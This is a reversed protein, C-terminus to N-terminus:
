LVATVEPNVWFLDGEQSVQMTTPLIMELSPTPSLSLDEHATPRFSGKTREVHAEGYFM